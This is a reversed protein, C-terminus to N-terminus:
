VQGGRQSGSRAQKSSRPELKTLLVFGGGLILITLLGAV